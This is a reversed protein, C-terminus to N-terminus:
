YLKHHNNNNRHNNNTIKNDDNNHNNINFTYTNTIDNSDNNKNQM